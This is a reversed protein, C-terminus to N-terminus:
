LYKNAGYGELLARVSKPIAESYVLQGLDINASADQLGGQYRKFIWSSLMACAERVPEPTSTAYGVKGLVTVESDDDSFQWGSHTSLLRIQNYYTGNRPYLRYYSSTIELGDGNTLTTISVYPADLCLRGERIAAIDYYRTSDTNQAFGDEPINKYRDIWRSAAAIISLIESDYTTSNIDLRGNAKVDALSCYDM